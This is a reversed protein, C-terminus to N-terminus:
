TTGRDLCPTQIFEAKGKNIFFGRGAPLTMRRYELTIQSGLWDAENTDKSLMLGLRSQRLYKVMPSALQMRLEELLGSAMVHVDSAMEMALALENLEKALAEKGPQFAAGLEDILVLLKKGKAAPKGAKLLTTLAQLDSIIEDTTAFVHMKKDLQEWKVLNSRRLAYLHVVWDDPANQLASVATCALFNSKGSEKPGMVLWAPSSSGLDPAITELTAYSFGVPVPVKGSKVGAKEFFETLSICDAL